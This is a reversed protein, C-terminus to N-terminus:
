PLRFVSCFSSIPLDEAFVAM